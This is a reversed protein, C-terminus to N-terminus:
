EWKLPGLKILIIITNNRIALNSFERYPGFFLHLERRGAANLERWRAGWERGHRAGKRHDAGRRAAEGVPPRWRPGEGAGADDDCDDDEGRGDRGARETQREEQPAQEDLPRVKVVPSFAAHSVRM